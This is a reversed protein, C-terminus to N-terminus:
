RRDPPENAADSPADVSGLEALMLDDAGIPRYAPLDRTPVWFRAISAVATKSQDPVVYRYHHSDPPTGRYLMMSLQEWMVREENLDQPTQLHLQDFVRWRHLDFTAKLEEGYALGAQVANRYLAWALLAIGATLLLLVGVRVTVAAATSSDVLPAMVLTVVAVVLLSGASLRAPRSTRRDALPLICAALAVAALVTVAPSHTPWSARIAAWLALPVGFLWTFTALTLLLDLSTKAQQLLDTSESPLLPQLRPWIVVADLRYRQWPYREASKLVNGLVTPMVTDPLPPYCLFLIRHLQLRREHLQNGLLDLAARLRETARNLRDLRQGWPTGDAPDADQVHPQALIWAARLEEALGDPVAAASGAQELTDLRGELDTIARDVNARPDGVPAPMAATATIEQPTPFTAQENRVAAARRELERDQNILDARRREFHARWHRAIDGALGLAPWYGQYLRDLADRLNVLAFTWFGVLILFGAIMIAQITGSQRNWDDLLEAQGVEILLILLLTGGLFVLSPFFASVLVRRDFYGTVERLVTSFM